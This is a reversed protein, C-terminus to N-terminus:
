NIQAFTSPEYAAANDPDTFKYLMFLPKSVCNKLPLVACRKEFTTASATEDQASTAMIPISAEADGFAIEAIAPAGM